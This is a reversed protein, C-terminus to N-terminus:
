MPNFLNGHKINWEVMTTVMLPSNPTFTICKNEDETYSCEYFDLLAKARDIIVDDTSSFTTPVPVGADDLFALARNILNVYYFSEDPNWFEIFVWNDPKFSGGQFFAGARQRSKYWICDLRNAKISYDFLEWVFKTVHPGQINIGLGKGPNHTAKVEM